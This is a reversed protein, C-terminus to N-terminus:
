GVLMVSMLMREVLAETAASVFWSPALARRVLSHPSLWGGLDQVQLTQLTHTEKHAQCISAAVGLDQVQLTAHVHLQACHPVQRDPMLAHLPTRGSVSPVLTECCDAGGAGGAAHALHSINPDSVRM